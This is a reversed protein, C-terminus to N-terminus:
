PKTPAPEVTAIVPFHDSPYHGDSSFVDIEVDKVSVDASTLLWDIRRGGKVLERFGNFTNAETEGKREAATEWTDSLEASGALLAHVPNEGAVANFDGAVIVPLAKERSRVRELLLAASKERSGQVEHDFHTNFFYFQRDTELDRFRVWTVMRRVANGWTTSGIVDPTDSLWFHDFELPELRATRYYVAMFEGRSGGERGLGIWEMDALERDLDKVQHYLGEQTGILDLDQREICEIIRPLRSDWDNPAPDAPYRINFTAVRLEAAALPAVLVCILAHLLILRKM